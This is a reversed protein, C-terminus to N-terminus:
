WSINWPPAHNEAFLFFNRMKACFTRFRCNKCIKYLKLVFNPANFCDFHVFFDNIKRAGVAFICFKAIKRRKLSFKPTNLAFFNPCKVPFSCIVDDNEFELPENARRQERSIGM